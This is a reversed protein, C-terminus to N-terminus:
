AEVAAMVPVADAAVWCSVTDGIDVEMAVRFFSDELLKVTGAVHGSFDRRLNAVKVVEGGENDGVPFGDGTFNGGADGRKGGESDEVKGSVLDGTFDGGIDSVELM